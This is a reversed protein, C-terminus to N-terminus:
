KAKKGKKGVKAPARGGVMLLVLILAAQGIFAWTLGAGHTTLSWGAMQSWEKPLAFTIPTVGWDVVPTRNYLGLVVACISATYACKGSFRHLWSVWNLKPALISGQRLGADLLNGCMLALALLGVLSHVSMFHKGPFGPPKNLYIAFFGSVMTGVACIQLVKHNRTLSTRTGVDTSAHRALVSHIAAPGFGIVGISMGIVHWSFLNNGKMLTLVAIQLTLALGVLTALLTNAPRSSCLLAKLVCLSGVVICPALVYGIVPYKPVFNIAEM